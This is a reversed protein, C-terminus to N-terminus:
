LLLYFILNTQLRGCQKFFRTAKSTWSVVEEDKKQMETRLTDVEVQLESSKASKSRLQEQLGKKDRKLKGGLGREKRLDSIAKQCDEQVPKLEDQAASRELKLDAIEEKLHEYRTKYQDDLSHENEAQKKTALEAKTNASAAQRKASKLDHGQKALEQKLSKVEERLRDV